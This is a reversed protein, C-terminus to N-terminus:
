LRRAGKLEWTFSQNSGATAAGGITFFLTCQKGVAQAAALSAYGLLQWLPKYYNAIAIASLLTASGATAAAVASDLGAPYTVDGLSFTVSTGLAGWYAKCGSPSLVSEWGLNQVAEILDNQPTANCVFTDRVIVEDFSREYASDVPTMPSAQKPTGVLAGYHTVVTM